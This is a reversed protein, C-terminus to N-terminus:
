TRRKQKTKKMKRLLMDDVDIEDAESEEESEEAEESGDESGDIQLKEKIAVIDQNISRCLITLSHMSENVCEVGFPLLVKSIFVCYPLSAFELPDLQSPFFFAVAWCYCETIKVRVAAVILVLRWMGRGLLKSSLVVTWCTFLPADLLGERQLQQNVTWPSARGM